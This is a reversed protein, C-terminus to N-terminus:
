QGARRKRMHKVLAARCDCGKRCHGSRKHHKATHRCSCLLKLRM